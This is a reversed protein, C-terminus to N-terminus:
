LLILVLFWLFSIAAIIIYNRGVTKIEKKENDNANITIHIKTTINGNYRVGRKYRRDSVYTAVDKFYYAKITNQQMKRLGLVLIIISSLPTFLIGSIGIFIYKAVSPILNEKILPYEKVTDQYFMEGNASSRIPTSHANGYLHNSIVRGGDRGVQNVASRVFGKALDGLFGM